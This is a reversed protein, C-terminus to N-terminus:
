LIPECIVTLNDAKHVLHARSWLFMVIVYAIHFGIRPCYVAKPFNCRLRFPTVSKILSMCMLRFPTVSKILSMCRLRFPTVNKILSMYRLHFPTVNKILSM